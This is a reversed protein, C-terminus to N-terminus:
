TLSKLQEAAGILHGRLGVRREARRMARCRWGSSGCRLAARHHREARDRVNCRRRGARVAHRAVIQIGAASTAPRRRARSRTRGRAPRSPSARRRSAAAPSDAISHVSSAKWCFGAPLVAISTKPAPPPTRRGPAPPATRSSSAAAPPRDQDHRHAQERRHDAHIQAAHVVVDQRLDAEDHQDAQRCSRSGSRRTRWAPALLVPTVGRRLRRDCAARVRSRGIRIVENAKMRPTHRQHDGAAGAGLHALREARRHEEAHEAHGRKPRINM